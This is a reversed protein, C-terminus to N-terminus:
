EGDQVRELVVETKVSAGREASNREFGAFMAEDSSARLEVLYEGPPVEGVEMRGKTCEYTEDIVMFDDEDYVSVEVKSVDNAGCVHGNGFRWVVELRAPRATLRMHPAQANEGGHVTVKKPGAEFAANGREDIGTSRIKYNAPRLSEVTARGPECEFTETRTGGEYALDVRVREIDAGDCGRPSIEWTLTVGGDTDPEVSEGCGAVSVILGVGIALVLASFDGCRRKMTEEKLMSRRAAWDKAVPM